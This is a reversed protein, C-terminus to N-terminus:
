VNFENMLIASALVPKLPIYITTFIDLIISLFHDVEGRKVTGTKCRVVWIKSVQNKRRNLLMFLEEWQFLFFFYLLSDTSGTCKLIMQNLFTASTSPQATTTQFQKNKLQINVDM